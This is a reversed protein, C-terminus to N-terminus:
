TKWNVHPGFQTNRCPIAPLGGAAREEEIESPQEGHSQKRLSVLPPLCLLRSEVWECVIVLPGLSNYFLILYRFRIIFISTIKKVHKWPQGTAFEKRLVFIDKFIITM